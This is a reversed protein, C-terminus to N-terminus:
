WRCCRMAWATVCSSWESRCGRPGPLACTTGPEAGGADVGADHAGAAVNTDHGLVLAPLILHRVADALARGNGGLISDLVYLNTIRALEVDNGLRSGAPVWGLWIAFVMMGTM